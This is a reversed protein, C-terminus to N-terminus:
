GSMDNEARVGAVAPFVSTAYVVIRERKTGNKRTWAFQRLTGRVILMSGKQYNDLVHEGLKQFATVTFWLPKQSKQRKTPNVALDFTAMLKGSRSKLKQPTSGIVGALTVNAFNLM